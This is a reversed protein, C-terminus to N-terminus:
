PRMAPAASARPGAEAERGFAQRVREVARGLLEAVKEGMEEALSKGPSRGPIRAAAEGVSADAQQFRADLQAADLKRRGFDAGLASRDRGYRAGAKEVQDYAAAFVRDQQLANDFETRLAAYRGGPQMGSVVARVGGAETSAAAEIKALVAQGPGLTFTELAQVLAQGSAESAQVLLDTRGDALAKEFSTVRHAMGAPPPAWPPPAELGPARMRDLVSALVTPRAQRPDPVSPAAVEPAREQVVPRVPALGGGGPSAVARVREESAAVPREAERAADRADAPVPRSPSSPPPVAPREPPRPQDQAAGAGAAIGARAALRVRNGLVEVQDRVEPTDQHAGMGAVLAAARRVDRVLGRDAIEPTSRVLAEVQRNELGPSTAALRTMEARLGAPMATSGPGVLRELDQLAYAVHTRFQPQEVRGPEAAQRALREIGRVLGPDRDGLVGSAAQLRQVLHLLPDRDDKGAAGFAAVRDAGPAPAPAAAAPPALRQGPTTSDSM